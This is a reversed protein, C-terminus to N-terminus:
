LKKVYRNIINFVLNFTLLNCARVVIYVACIGYSQLQKKDKRCFVPPLLMSNTLMLDFKNFVFCM